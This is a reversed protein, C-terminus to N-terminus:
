IKLHIESWFIVNVYTNEPTATVNTPHVLLQLSTETEEKVTYTYQMEELKTKYELLFADKTFNKVSRIKHDTIAAKKFTLTALLANM